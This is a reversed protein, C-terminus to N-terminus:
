PAAAAANWAGAAPVVGALRGDVGQAPARAPRSQESGRQAARQTDRGGGARGPASGAAAEQRARGHAPRGAAALRTPDAGPERAGDDDARAAQPLVLKSCALTAAACALHISPLAAARLHM